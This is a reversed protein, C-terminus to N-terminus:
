IMHNRVKKNSDSNLPFINPTLESLFKLAPVRNPERRPLEGMAVVGTLVSGVVDTLASVVASIAANVVASMCASVVM